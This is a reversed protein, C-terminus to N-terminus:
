PVVPDDVRSVGPPNEAEAERSGVLRSWFICFVTYEPHLYQTHIVGGHKIFFAEM